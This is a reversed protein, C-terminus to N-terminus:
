KQLLNFAINIMITLIIGTSFLQALRKECVEISAFEEASFDIAMHLFLYYDSPALDQSYHTHLFGKLWRLRLKQYTVIWTHSRANVQHFM